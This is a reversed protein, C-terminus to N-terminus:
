YTMGGFSISDINLNDFVFGCNNAKQNYRKYEDHFYYSSTATLTNSLANIIDNDTIVNSPMDKSLQIDNFPNIISSDFNIFTDFTLLTSHESSDIFPKFTDNNIYDISKIFSSAGFITENGDCMSSRITHSENIKITSKFLIENRITLPEIIGDNEYLLSLDADNTIIPWNKETRYIFFQDINDQVAIYEIPNFYDIETFQNDNGRLILPEGLYAKKIVHGYEDAHIKAMGVDFHKIECLEIGQRYPNLQTTDITGSNFTKLINKNIKSENFTHDNILSADYSTIFNLNDM